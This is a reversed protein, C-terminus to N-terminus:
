YGLKALTDDLAFEARGLDIQMSLTFVMRAGWLEGDPRWCQRPSRIPVPVPQLPGTPRIRIRRSIGIPLGLQEEHTLSRLAAM